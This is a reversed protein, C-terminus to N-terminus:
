FGTSICNLVYKMRHLMDHKLDWFTSRIRYCCLLRSLMLYFPCHKEAVMMRWFQSMEWIVRTFRSIHGQLPFSFSKRVCLAKKGTLLGWKFLPKCKGKTHTGSCLWKSHFYVVKKRSLTRRLLKSGTQRLGSRDGWAKQILPQLGRELSIRCTLVTVCVSCHQKRNQNQLPLHTEWTCDQNEQVSAIFIWNVNCKLTIESIVWEGKRCMESRKSILKHFKFLSINGILMSWLGPQGRGLAKKADDQSWSQETSGLRMMLM